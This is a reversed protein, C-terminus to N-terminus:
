FPTRQFNRLNLITCRLLRFEFNRAFVTGVRTIQVHVVHCGLTPDESSTSLKSVTSIGTSVPGEEPGALAELFACVGLFVGLLFDFDFKVLGAELFLLCSFPPAKSFMSVLKSVTSIRTSGRSFSFESSIFFHVNSEGLSPVASKRSSLMPTPKFRFFLSGRIDRVEVKGFSTNTRRESRVSKSEVSSPM